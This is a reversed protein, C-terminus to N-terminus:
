PQMAPGGRQRTAMEQVLEGILRVREIDGDPPIEDSIGLVLRPHFLEVAKRACEILTELPFYPLFYVAPIGDLLVRDGLAEKIQELTVDGQPVPTCAEIGDFPSERIERILMRMAGDIHIHTFKGAAKLQQARKRYYPVLHKRWVPPPDMYGDINEGFNLIDIPAQCLVRYLADDAATAVEVYREIVEPHDAMMFITNEFGMNEIFLGQIPSRRFYFQPVGRGGVAEIDHEYSEQDWYWKEDQLIYEYIEFDAPTKLRYESNYCSLGWEDYHFVEQLCGVPTEYIRRRSKEDIWEDTARVNHYRVRLPSVFYRVSGYVYDYLELLSYDKLHAPLTGRKQNVAYWFEIRPQWLVRGPDKGRFIDLNIRAYDPRTNISM